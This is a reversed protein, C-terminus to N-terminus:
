TKFKIKICCSQLISIWFLESRQIIIIISCHEVFPEIRKWRIENVHKTHFRSAKPKYGSTGNSNRPCHPMTAKIANGKFVNGNYVYSVSFYYSEGAVLTGGIDGNYYPANSNIVTSTTNLDSIVAAYGDKPYIPNSNSKSAVIKYYNFGDSAIGKAWKIQLGGDVASVQVNAKFDSDIIASTDEQAQKKIEDGLTGNKEVANLKNLLDVLTGNRIEDASMDGNKTLAYKYLFERGISMNNAMASNIIDSDEIFVTLVSADAQNEELSTLIGKLQDSYSESLNESSPDLTASVLVVKKDSTVYGLEKSITVIKEVGQKLPLGKLDLGVLVKEGDENISKVSVILRDKNVKIEISPNIDVSVVAVSTTDFAVDPQFLPKILITSVVIAFVAAVAMLSKLIASKNQILNSVLDKKIFSIQKGVIYDGKTKITVLGCDMTFIYTKKNEIELITGIQVM